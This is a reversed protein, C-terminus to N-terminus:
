HEILQQGPTSSQNGGRENALLPAVLEPDEPLVKSCPMRVRLLGLRSLPEVDWAFVALFVSMM